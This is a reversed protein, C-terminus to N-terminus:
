AMAAARAQWKPPYPVTAGNARAKRAIREKRKQAAKLKRHIRRAEWDAMAKCQADEYAMLEAPTANPAPKPSPTPMDDHVRSGLDSETDEYTARDEATLLPLMDAIERQTKGYARRYQCPKCIGLSYVIPARRGCMPCTEVDLSIPYGIKRLRAVVAEIEDSSRGMRKCLMKRPMRGANEILFALESETWDPPSQSIKCGYKRLVRLAWNVEGPTRGLNACLRGLPMWGGNKILYALEGVTWEFSDESSM